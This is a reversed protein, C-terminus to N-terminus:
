ADATVFSLTLDGPGFAVITQALVSIPSPLQNYMLLNGGEAADYIAFYGIEGWSGTAEPFSIGGYNEVVGANPEGFYSLEVRAYGNGDPETVGTGNMDPVTKSLALYYSAPLPPDTKCGLVNGAVLNLFYETNM